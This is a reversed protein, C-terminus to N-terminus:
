VKKQRQLYKDDIIEDDKSIDNNTTSKIEDSSTTNNKDLGSDDGLINELINDINKKNKEEEFQAKKYFEVIDEKMEKFDTPDYKVNKYKECNVYEFEKKYEDKKNFAFKDKLEKDHTAVSKKLKDANEKFKREDKDERQVKYITLEEQSKYEKKFEEVPLINKYPQNTRTSWYKEREPEITKKMNNIIRDFRMKDIKADPKRQDLIVARINAPNNQQPQPVRRNSLNIMNNNQIGRMATLEQFKKQLNNPNKIM